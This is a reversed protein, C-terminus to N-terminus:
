WSSWDIGKFDKEHEKIYQRVTVANKLKLLCENRLKNYLYSNEKNKLLVWGREKINRIVKEEFDLIINFHFLLYFDVNEIKQFKEVEYRIKMTIIKEKYKFSISLIISSFYYNSVFKKTPEYLKNDSIINIDELYNIRNYYLPKIRTTDILDMNLGTQKEFIFDWESNIWIEKDDYKNIKIFQIGNKKSIKFQHYEYNFTFNSISMYKLLIYTENIINEAKITKRDGINLLKIKYLEERIQTSSIEKIRTNLRNIEEDLKEIYIKGRLIKENNHSKTTIFEVKYMGIQYLVNIGKDTDIIKVISEDSIDAYINRLFKKEKDWFCKSNKIKKVNCNLIIEEIEEFSILKIKPDSEIKRYLDLKKSKKREFLLGRLEKDLVNNDIIIKLNYYDEEDICDKKVETVYYYKEGIAFLDVPKLQRFFNVENQIIFINKEQSCQDIFPYWECEKKVEDYMPM